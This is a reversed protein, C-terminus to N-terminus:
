DTVLDGISSDQVALFQNHNKSSPFITNIEPLTKGPSKHPAQPQTTQSMNGNPSREKPQAVFLTKVIGDSNKKGFPMM